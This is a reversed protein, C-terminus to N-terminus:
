VDPMFEDNAAFLDECLPRAVSIDPILPDTALAARALDRNGTLAAEVIYEQRMVHPAIVAHIKPPLKGLPLPRVGRADVDAMCELIAGRPLNEVQGQNPLNVVFRGVPGGALAAMLPALEKAPRVFEKAPGGQIFQEFTTQWQRALTKRHEITTLVVGYQGGYQTSGTLFGPFFEAVHRDAAGFLLGCKEFLSLKITLRDKFVDHVDSDHQDIFEFASHGTFWDRLLSFGDENGIRLRSIVPLHNIGVVDFSLRDEPVQLLPALYRRCFSEAQHCFGLTRITSTRVISRCITTLPNSLNLLWANPCLEEMEHALQVAFPIHRLGRALGGPGVTDGVSQYIGYRAPIELDKERAALGGISVCLIVFDADYLAENRDLTTTIHLDSRLEAVMRQCARSSTDLTTADIDQLIVNAGQLTENSCIDAVLRSAWLASGGGILAIKM